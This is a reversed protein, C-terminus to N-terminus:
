REGELIEPNDITNGIAEVDDGNCINYSADLLPNDINKALIYGMVSDDDCPGCSGTDLYVFCNGWWWTPCSLIDKEYIDVCNKDCIGTFQGVTEPDVEHDTFYVNTVSGFSVTNTMIYSKTTEGDTLEGYYGYVWEGNDVRKGRFKYERM